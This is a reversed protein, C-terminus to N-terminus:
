RAAAVHGCQAAGAPIHCSARMPLRARVLRNTVDLVRAHSPALACSTTCARVKAAKLAIELNGCELALNFRTEEDEVFFLAM